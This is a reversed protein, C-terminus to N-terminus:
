AEGTACLRRSIVPADDAIKIIQEEFITLRDNISEDYLAKFESNHLWQTVRRVTPMHDDVCIDILLEGSSIRECIEIALPESYPLANKKLDTLKRQREVAEQIKISDWQALAEDVAESNFAYANSM